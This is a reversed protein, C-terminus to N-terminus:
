IASCLKLALTPWGQREREQFDGGGAMAHILYYALQIDRGVGDLSASEGVDGQVVECGCAQLDEARSANRVLCRVNAGSGVLARALRGGIFGTAGTVLM